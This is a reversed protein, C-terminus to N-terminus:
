TSVISSFYAVCLFQMVHSTKYVIGWSISLGTVHRMLHQSWHCAGHSASVLSMGWSSLGTVHGMLNQSWHCAEHSASVLSMGWSISLGTVHGMLHQSWHCAGHSASILSIGWSISLGTVHGILHQSWHCAGHSASVLSMDWSILDTVHGMLHQSWHCAGHASVLSMGWSISLGTALVMLQFWLCAGHPCTGGEMSTWFHKSSNIGDWLGMPCHSMGYSIWRDRKYICIHGVTWRIGCDWPITHSQISLGMYDMPGHHYRYFLSLLSSLSVLFNQLYSYSAISFFFFSSSHFYYTGTRLSKLTRLLGPRRPSGLSCLFKVAVPHQYLIVSSYIHTGYKSLLKRLINVLCFSYWQACIWYIQVLVIAFSIIFWTVIPRSRRRSDSTVITWKTVVANPRMLLCIM